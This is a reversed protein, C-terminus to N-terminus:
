IDPEPELCGFIKAGAAVKLTKSEPELVIQDM